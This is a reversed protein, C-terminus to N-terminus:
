PPPRRLIDSLRPQSNKAVRKLGLRQFTRGLRDTLTGYCELDIERGAAIDGELRECALSITAARRALQRQGESLGDNGMDSLIESLIDRFRRHWKGDGPAVVFLRTGNTVASRQDKRIVKSGLTVRNAGATGRITATEMLVEEADPGVGMMRGFQQGGCPKEPLGTPPRGLLLGPFLWFGRSDSRQRTRTTPCCM